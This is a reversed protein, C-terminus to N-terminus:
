GKPSVLGDVKTTLQSLQELVLAFQDKTALGDVKTELGYIRTELRDVKVDLGDFRVELHDLKRGHEVQTERLAELSKRYGRSAEQFDGVDRDSMSALTRTMENYERIRPLEAEVASVRTRLKDLESM